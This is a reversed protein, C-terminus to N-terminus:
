RDCPRPSLHFDLQLVPHFHVRLARRYFVQVTAHSTARSFLPHDWGTFCQYWFLSFVWVISKYFFNLIMEACRMYSWRGHVLVLKALFRFQGIVYDSAMAAQLGEAGAIGVGVNAEQIMGVDNAGDGIALCMCKLHKKALRVVLAKQKPTVRCCIVSRCQLAVALLESSGEETEFAHKMTEGDIVLGFHPTLQSMDGPAQRGSAQRSLTGPRNSPTTTLVDAGRLAAVRQSAAVLQQHADSANGADRVVILEMHAELLNCSYGINIATELKDGTLVWIKIGAERLLGICEPVADQLRDEIATTGLLTLDREISDYCAELLAERGSLASAAADYDRRWAKYEPDPIARQALCLTRLGEEAFTELNDKTQQKLVEDGAKLRPLIISDAGKTLLLVEDKDGDGRVIISMRKRASNFELVQLLSYVEEHGRVSLTISRQTREKLVYGADRASLVLAQEDPSEANYHVEGTKADVSTAVTHCLALCRFFMHTAEVHETEGSLDKRLDFAGYVTGLIDCKRFEMKNMTLTGTKDSFIYAIQGLDDAISWNKPVCPQDNEPYYIDIDVFIFYAQLIKAIEITVYLSIPILNQFLIMSSWFTIFGYGASAQYDQNFWPALFDEWRQSYIMHAITVGLCLLVLIGFTLLVQINMKREIRSRKHPTAGANLLIKTEKGTYAVLGVVWETNRLVSGRLMLNSINLPIPRHLEEILPVDRIPAAASSQGHVTRSRLDSVAAAGVGESAHEPLPVGRPISSTEAGKAGTDVAPDALPSRDLSNLGDGVAAAATPIMIVGSYTYLNLNPGESDLWFRAGRCSYASDLFRLDVPGVKSKLNTEGDLNKTEVYALNDPDSTSLVVVDAPILDNKRLFVFDGVRLDSWTVVPWEEEYAEPKSFSSPADAVAYGHNERLLEDQRALVKARRRQMHPRLCSECCPLVALLNDITKWFLTGDFCRRRDDLEEALYNVNHHRALRRTLSNNLEKDSKHRKYDEWGDKLATLTLVIVLPVFPMFANTVQFVPFVQSVAMALFFVNAIRHFQEWLNKPLFTIISYKATSVENSPFQVSPFGAADLFSDPQPLNVFIRRRPPVSVPQLSSVTAHLGSSGKTGNAANGDGFTGSWWSRLKGSM